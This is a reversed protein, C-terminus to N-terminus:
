VGCDVPDAGIARALLVARDYPVAERVFWPRGGDARRSGQYPALGLARALRRQDPRGSSYWGLEAAVLELTRGSRQFAERLPEVPVTDLTVTVPEGIGQMLHM